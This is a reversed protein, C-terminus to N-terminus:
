CITRKLVELSRNAVNLPLLVGPGRIESSTVWIEKRIMDRAGKLASAARPPVSSRLLRDKRRYVVECPQTDKAKCLRRPTAFGTRCSSRILLTRADHLRCLSSIELSDARARALRGRVAGVLRTDFDVSRTRSVLSGFSAALWRLRKVIKRPRSPAHRAILTHYPHEIYM